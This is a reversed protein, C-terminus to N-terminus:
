PEESGSARLLARTERAAGRLAAAPTETGALAASLHRQLLDSALAYRAIAPRAVAYRHVRAVVRLFPNAALFRPDDYAGARAPAYGSKLCLIRQGEM